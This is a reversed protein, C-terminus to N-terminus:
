HASPDKGAITVVRNKFEETSNVKPYDVAPIPLDLFKCLPEWGESVQYVLLREAPITRQVDELHKEYIATLHAADDVNGGFTRDFVITKAMRKQAAMHPKDDAAPTGIAGFITEKASKIWSATPRHTLIVKSEPYYDALERWFYTSPWDVTAGYGNFITDWDPSGDVAANWLEAHGPNQFVEVMHYCRGVGLMELAMKLSLTGTRGFGAGVVKLTM